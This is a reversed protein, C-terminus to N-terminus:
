QLSLSILYKLVDTKAGNIRGDLIVSYTHQLFIIYNVNCKSEFNPIYEKMNWQILRLQYEQQESAMNSM